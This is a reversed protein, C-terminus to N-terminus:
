CLAAKNTNTEDLRRIVPAGEGEIELQTKLNAFQQGTEL